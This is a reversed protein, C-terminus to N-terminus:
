VHWSAAIHDSSTVLHLWALTRAECALMASHTSGLPREVTLAVLSPRSSVQVVAPVQQLTRADSPFGFM